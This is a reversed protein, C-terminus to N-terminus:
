AGRVLDVVQSRTGIWVDSNATADALIADYVWAGAPRGFYHAHVTVDIHMPGDERELAVRAVRAASSARPAPM